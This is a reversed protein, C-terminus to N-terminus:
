HAGAPDHPEPPFPDEPMMPPRSDGNDAAIGAIVGIVIVTLMITATTGDSPLASLPGLARQSGCAPTATALVLTLALARRM